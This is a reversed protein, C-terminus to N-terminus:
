YPAGLGLAYRVSAPITEPGPGRGCDSDSDDVDAPPRQDGPRTDVRTSGIFGREKGLKLGHEFANLEVSSRVEEQGQGSKRAPAPDKRAPPPGLRPPRQAMGHHALEDHTRAVLPPDPLGPDSRM